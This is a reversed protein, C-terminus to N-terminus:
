PLGGLDRLQPALFDSLLNCYIAVRLYGLDCLQPLPRDPARFNPM